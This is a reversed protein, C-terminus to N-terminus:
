GDRFLVFACRKQGSGASKITDNGAGGSIEGCFGSTEISDDGEGGDIEPSWGNAQISKDGDRGTTFQRFFNLFNYFDNVAAHIRHHL